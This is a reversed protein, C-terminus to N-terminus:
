YLTNVQNVFLWLIISDNIIYVVKFIWMGPKLAPWQETKIREDVFEKGAASLVLRIIEGRGKADFYTVKYTTM